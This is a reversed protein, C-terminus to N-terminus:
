TSCGVCAEATIELLIEPTGLAAVQVQTSTPFDGTFFERRAKWVLSNDKMNVVQSVIKVVDDMQGGAAAVCHRIKTFIIKAQEYADRGQITKLDNARCTVGCVYIM